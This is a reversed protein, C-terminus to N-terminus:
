KFNISLNSKLEVWWYWLWTNWSEINEKMKKKLWIKDIKPELTIYESPIKTIDTIELSESKRLSAKILPTEVKEMWLKILNDKVYDKLREQKNEITEKMKKLRDIETKIKEINGDWDQLLLWINQVKDELKPQLEDLKTTDIEGNEDWQIINLLENSLTYLSTM